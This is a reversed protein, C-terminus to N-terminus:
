DYEGDFTIVGARHLRYRLSNFQGGVTEVRLKCQAAREIASTVRLLCRRRKAFRNSQSWDIHRAAEKQGRCKFGRTVVISREGSIRFQDRNAWIIRITM